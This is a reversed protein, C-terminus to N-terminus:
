HEPSKKAAERLHVYIQMKLLLHQRHHHHYPLDLSSHGTEKSLNRLSDSDALWLSHSLTIRFLCDALWALLQSLESESADRNEM